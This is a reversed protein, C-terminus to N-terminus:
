AAVAAREASQESDHPRKGAHHGILVIPWNSDTVSWFRLVISLGSDTQTVFIL